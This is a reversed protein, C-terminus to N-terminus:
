VLEELVAIGTRIKLPVEDGPSEVDEDICTFHNSYGTSATM